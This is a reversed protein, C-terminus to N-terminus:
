LSQISIEKPALGASTSTIKIEGAEDRKSRIILMCQGNFAKRYNAQFPEATAANGNGVAAITGPGSVKFTVLNDALPCVNGDKDVVKVTVFSLDYGDADIIKQDPILELKASKGATNIIKEAHIKGNKYAVVKLEGPEYNVNWNLRYPSDWTTEPKKWWSFEAPITTKDVGMTKRGLSKGNLFLEAEDGNTYCYVPITNHGTNEWNWHPLIHVM